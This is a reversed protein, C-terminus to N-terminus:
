SWPCFKDDWLLVHPSKKWTTCLKGQRRARSMKLRNGRGCSSVHQVCCTTEHPRAKGANHNAPQLVFLVSWVDLNTPHVIVIMHGIMQRVGIM